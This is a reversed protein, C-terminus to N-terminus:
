KKTTNHLIENPLFIKDSDHLTKIYTYNMSNLYQFTQENINEGFRNDLKDWM